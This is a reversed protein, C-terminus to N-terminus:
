RENELVVISQYVYKEVNKAGKVREREEERV